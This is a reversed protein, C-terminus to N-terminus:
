ESQDYLRREIEELRKAHDTSIVQIVTKTEIPAGDKGGVETTQKPKGHLRDNIMEAAQVRRFDKQDGTLLLRGYAQVIVPIQPDQIFVKLRDVPLSEIYEMLGRVEDKPPRKGYAHEIYDTLSMAVPKPRGKRNINQPRQRFGNEKIKDPNGRM